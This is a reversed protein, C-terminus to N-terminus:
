THAMATAVTLREAMRFEIAGSAALEFVDTASGELSSHPAAIVVRELSGVFSCQLARAVLYM